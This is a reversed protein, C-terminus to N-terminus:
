SETRARVGDGSAAAVVVVDEIGRVLEEMQEASVSHTDAEVLLVAADGAADFTIMVHPFTKLPPGWRLISHQKAAHMEEPSPRTRSAVGPQGAAEARVNLLCGIDIPEGRERSIRALLEAHNQPDFYACKSAQLSARQARDVVQAFPADGVEVVLIGNQCLPHSVGTLGPRFRNDVVGQVVVPDVVGLRTLVTAYAALIVATSTRGLDAAVARAAMGLAASEFSAQRFRPEPRDTAPPNVFRRPAVERLVREWHWLSAASARCGAPGAQWAALELPGTPAEPDRAQNTVPDREALERMMTGAGAGDAALHSLCVVVHTGAGRHRVAGIRLPWEHEYDFKTGQWEDSLAQAVAAPDEHDAVEVVHLVAEGSAAVVQTVTGDTAVHLRTRVSEYRSMLFALESALDDADKGDTLPVVACMPRSTDSDQMVEWIHQQGWTLPGSGAGPGAFPVARGTVTTAPRGAGADQLVGAVRPAEAM